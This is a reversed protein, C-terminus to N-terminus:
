IFKDKNTELYDSANQPNNGTKGFGLILTGITGLLYGSHLMQSLAETGWFLLSYIGGLLMVSILYGRIIHNNKPLSKHKELFKTNPIGFRIIILIPILTFSTIGLGVMAGITFIIFVMM